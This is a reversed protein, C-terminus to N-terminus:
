DEKEKHCLSHIIHIFIKTAATHTKSQDKTERTHLPQTFRWTNYPSLHVATQKASSNLLAFRLMWVSPPALADRCWMSDSWSQWSREGRATFPTSLMSHSQPISGRRHHQLTLVYVYFFMCLAKLTIRSPSHLHFYVVFVLSHLRLNWSM